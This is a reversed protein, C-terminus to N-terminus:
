CSINVSNLNFYEAYEKWVNDVNIIENFKNKNVKILEPDENMAEQARALYYYAFAHDTTRNIVDKFCKAAIEYDGIKMRYNNVFNADLNMIYTEKTIKEPILHPPANIIYNNMQDKTEGIKLNKNIYGNKICIDYLESGRLPTALHFGCWDFGIDKIFKLTEIRHEEEEGPLGIVFFAEIFIDNNRLSQIVPNVMKLNLPKHIIKRLIYESGHEIALIVVDLGANKMLCAMEDDIFAVSLGNPCELRLNFPALKRFLEKAREKNMLLQDDYIALVNMGYNSVLYEVHKIINDINAYRVKNDYLRSHTACFVCKYPCGRSTILYFQTTEKTNDNFPSFAQAMKYKEVEILSYDIDIADDINALLSKEVTKTNNVLNKKTIWSKDNELLELMNESNILNTVPIEGETYCIGDIYNQENLIESYSFSASSGGLVVITNNNNDKIIKSINELYKYSDDYIMSLGVVDPKFDLLTKKLIEVSEEYDQLNCDIIRININKNTHKKLYTSISLIGYPFVKSYRRSKCNKDKESIIFQPLAIFLINCYKNYIM